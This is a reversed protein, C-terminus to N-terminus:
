VLFNYRKQRAVKEANM